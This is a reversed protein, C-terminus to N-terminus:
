VSKVYCVEKIGWRAGRAVRREIWSRITTRSVGVRAAAEVQSPFVEVEGSEWTVEIDQTRANLGARIKAREAPDQMRRRTQAGTRAREAPDEFRRNNAVRIKERQEDTFDESRRGGGVRGDLNMCRKRKMWKDIYGQEVALIQAQSGGLVEVIQFEINRHKLFAAQMYANYHDGRRLPTMHTRWRHLFGDPNAASGYYVFPLRGDNPRILIRYIGRQKKEETTYVKGRLEYDM